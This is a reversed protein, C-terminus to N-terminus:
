FANCYIFVRGSEKDVFLSGIPVASNRETADWRDYADPSKPTFWVPLTYDREKSPLARDNFMGTDSTTLRTIFEKPADLEVHWSSEALLFFFHRGEWVESHHVTINAPRPFGFIRRFNAENDRYTHSGFWM